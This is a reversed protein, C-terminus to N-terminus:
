FQIDRKMCEIKAALVHYRQREKIFDTIFQSLPLQRELLSNVLYESKGDAEQSAQKVQKLIVQDPTGGMKKGSAQAKAEYEAKIDQLTMKLNEAETRLMDMEEQKGLTHQAAKANNKRFDTRLEKMSMVPAMGLVLAERATDDELLRELQPTALDKLEEFKNPIPPARTQTLQKESANRGILGGKPRAPSMGGNRGGGYEMGHMTPQGVIDHLPRPGSGFASTDLVGQNLPTQLEQGGYGAWRKSQDVATNGAGGSSSDRRFESIVAAVIDGIMKPSSGDWGNLDPHGVVQMYPNVWKHQVKSLLQLVPREAPFKTPLFIRLMVPRGDPPANIQVEYLSSDTSKVQVDPVREQLNCVQRERSAKLDNQGPPQRKGANGFIWSM